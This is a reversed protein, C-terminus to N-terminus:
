GDREAFTMEVGGVTDAAVNYLFAVFVNVLAGIVVLTLGILFAWKEVAFLSVNFDGLVLGSWVDELTDFVEMSELITYILAVILLWIVLFCSYFFFSLKLISIPDVHRLTRKVRRVPVRRRAASRGGSRSMEPGRPIVDTRSASEAAAVESPLPGGLPDYAGTSGTEPTLHGGSAPSSEPESRWGPRDEIPSM